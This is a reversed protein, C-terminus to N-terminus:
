ERRKGFDVSESYYGNSEGYWRITVAGKITALKYFTWTFSDQYEPADVGEPNKDQEGIVEEALLIPTNLLDNLDGCIDEIDVCECCDQVHYMLYKNGSSSTFVIRDKEKNVQIDVLTQGKLCSFDEDDQYM